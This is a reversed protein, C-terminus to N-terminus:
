FCGWGLTFSSEPVKPVKKGGSCSARFVRWRSSCLRTVSRHNESQEVTLLCNLLPVTTGAVLSGVCPATEIVLERFPM